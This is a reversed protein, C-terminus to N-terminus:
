QVLEKHPNAITEVQLVQQQYLNQDFVQTAISRTLQHFHNAWIVLIIAVSLLGIISSVGKINLSKPAECVPKGDVTHCQEKPLVNYFLLSGARALAIILLLSSVLVAALIWFFDAHDLAASLVLLKGMFGSLPPLGAMAIAAVMFIGGMLVANPMAHAKIFNDEAEGRGQRILDAILFMAGAILTSHILYFLTAAMAEQSHIGVGILLTSISALVVYAVQERLNRSALAGLAALVLTIIGLWLVWPIHIASLDGAQDGFLTGHIRIIAYIGVKTMIAFLAAVPASTNAYAQPLWLYLPFMAAKIGFVLLLMLGAAAVVGQDDASLNAVKVAMDALNLTGLIGYLAGVAFLFLTSGVLNLAVYHLGARTKLRGGGHLLLGYSALLLVEFFVFLNFVDGTMFAGNLGFLQIQFLVHFHSGQQDVQQRVAFWMAALALLSTLLVMTASLQDLVMVIGFPAVWNGLAYVQPPLDFAVMLSNANIVVLVFVALFSIARQWKFGASKALLVVIASLLPWLVPLFTELLM